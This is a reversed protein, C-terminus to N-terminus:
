THYRYIASRMVCQLTMGAATTSTACAPSISATAMSSQGRCSLSKRDRSVTTRPLFPSGGSWWESLCHSFFWPCAGDVHVWCAWVAFAAFVAALLSRLEARPLNSYYIALTGWAILVIQCAVWIGRIIWGLFRSPFRRDSILLNRGSKTLISNGTRVNHAM